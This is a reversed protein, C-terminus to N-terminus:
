LIYKLKKVICKKAINGIVVVLIQTQINKYYVLQISICSM